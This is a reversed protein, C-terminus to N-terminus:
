IREPNLYIPKLIIAVLKYLKYLIPVKQCLLNVLKFKSYRFKLLKITKLKEYFIEQAREYLAIDYGNAEKIKLLLEPPINKEPKGKAINQKVAYYAFNWKFKRKMLFVSEDFKELLGFEIKREILSLAKNFDHETVIDNKCASLYRTQLNNGLRMKLFGEISGCKEIIEKHKQIKVQSIHNFHSIVNEVPNRLFTVYSYHNEKLQSHIGYHFHGSIFDYEDLNEGKEYKKYYLEESFPPYLYAKNYKAFVSDLVSRFTTGATKPIHLFILTHKKSM